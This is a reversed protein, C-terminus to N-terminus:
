WDVVSRNRWFKGSPGDPEFRALWVPTEAGEEVTRPAEPGGMDTRVWGPCAANVLLGDRHYTAHLSATFANLGAKSVAYPGHQGSIGSAFQGSTSSVNVVRGGRRDLLLPLAHKTLLMPGRLNTDLTRDIAATPAEHLPGAPGYVGANNVLVDLRGTESEVRDVAAVMSEEETVDLRVPRAEATAVGEPRRAGAYVTADLAALQTAIESGIGRNAGTVLATQGALTDHCDVDM